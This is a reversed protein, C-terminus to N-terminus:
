PLTISGPGNFKYTRCGPTAPSCDCAGPFAPAAAYVTPYQIVVV